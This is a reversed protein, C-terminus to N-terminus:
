RRAEAAIRAPCDMRCPRDADQGDCEKSHKAAPPHAEVRERWSLDGVPAPSAPEAVAPPAQEPEAFRAAAGSDIWHQRQEDTIPDRAGLHLMTGRWNFYINTLWEDSKAPDALDPHPQGETAPITQTYGFWDAWGCLDAASDLDIHNSHLRIDCPAPLGFDVGANIAAILERRRAQQDHIIPQTM